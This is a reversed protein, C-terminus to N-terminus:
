LPAEDPDEVIVLRAEHPGFRLAHSNILVQIVTGDRRTHRWPGSRDFHPLDRTLELFKPVDEVPRIDALRLCTFEAHPYGYLEQAAYNADLIELSEVDYVWMALPNLDFLSSYSDDHRAAGAALVLGVAEMLDHRDADPDETAM